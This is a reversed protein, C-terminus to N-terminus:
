PKFPTPTPQPTTVAKNLSQGLQGIATKVIDYKAKNEYHALITAKNMLSAINDYEDEYKKALAKLAPNTAFAGFGTKDNGNIFDFSVKDLIEPNLKNETKIAEHVKQRTNNYPSGTAGNDIYFQNLDVGAPVQKASFLNVIYNIIHAKAAEVKKAPETQMATKLAIYQKGIQNSQSFISDTRIGLGTIANDVEPMNETVQTMYKQVLDLQKAPNYESNKIMQRIDSQLGLNTGADEKQKIVQQAQQMANSLQQMKADMANFYKDNAATINADPVQLKNKLFDVLHPKALQNTVFQKFAAYPNANRTNTLQAKVGDYLQKIVGMQTNPLLTGKVQNQLNQPVISILVNSLEQIVKDPNMLENYQGQLQDLTQKAQQVEQSNKGQATQKAPEDSKGTWWNKIKRGINKLGGWLGTGEENIRYDYYDVFSPMFIESTQELLIPNEADNAALFERFKVIKSM